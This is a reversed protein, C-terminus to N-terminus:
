YEQQCDSLTIFVQLLTETNKRVQEIDNCLTDENYDSLTQIHRMLIKKLLEQGEKPSKEKDM